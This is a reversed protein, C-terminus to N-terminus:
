IQFSCARGGRLKVAKNAPTPASNCCQPSEPQVACPVARRAAGLHSFDIQHPMVGLEAAHVEPHVHAGIGQAGAGHFVIGLEAFHHATQWPEGPQMGQQGLQPAAPKQGLAAQPNDMLQLLEQVLMVPMSAKVMCGRAPAWPSSVPMM